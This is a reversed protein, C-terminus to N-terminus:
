SNKQVNVRKFWWCWLFIVVAYVVITFTYDHNFKLWTPYFRHIFSLCIIRVINVVEIIIAGLPIFYFLAKKNNSFALLVIIFVAVVSLADCNPSVFVRYSGDIIITHSFYDQNFTVGCGFFSIIGGSCHVLFHILFEDIETHPLIVLEYLFLWLLYGGVVSFLLKSLESKESFIRLV